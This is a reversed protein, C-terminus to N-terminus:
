LAHQDGTAIGEEQAVPADLVHHLPKRGHVVDDVDTPARARRHRHGHADGIVQRLQQAAVDLGPAPVNAHHRVDLAGGLHRGIQGLRYVAQAALAEVDVVLLDKSQM